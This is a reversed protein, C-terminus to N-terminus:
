LAAGVKGAEEYFKLTRRDSNGNHLKKRYEMTRSTNIISRTHEYNLYEEKDLM